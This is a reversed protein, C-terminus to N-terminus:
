DINEYIVTGGCYSGTQHGLGWFTSDSTGTFFKTDDGYRTQCDFENGPICTNPGECFSVTAGSFEPIPFSMWKDIECSTSCHGPTDPGTLEKWQGNDVRYIVGTNSYTSAGGLDLTAGGVQFLVLDLPVIKGFAGAAFALLSLPKSFFM